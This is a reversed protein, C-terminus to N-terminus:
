VAVNSFFALVIDEGKKRTVRPSAHPQTPMNNRIYDAGQKDPLKGSLCLECM